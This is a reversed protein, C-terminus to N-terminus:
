IMQENAMKGFASEDSLSIGWIWREMRIEM